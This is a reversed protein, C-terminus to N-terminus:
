RNFGMKIIEDEKSSPHENVMLDLTEIADEYRDGLIVVAVFLEKLHAISMGETADVWRDIDIKFEQRTTEDILHNFYIKRSEANPHEMKFRKDFRSPRNLIRPGLAEPYNTTALYVVKEVQNVGDLINLVDSESFRSITSDIDEILVVIPTEPQVERFMRIGECFVSPIGFNFVVGNRKIVDACVLQITSSKGSGPPGYLFIGRKYNLNYRKFYDQREWFNSIEKIVKESNSDPFKLLGDTKVDIKQFFLGKMPDVMMDFFGPKLVPVTPGAPYYRVGDLTTYQTLGKHSNKNETFPDDFHGDYQLTYNELPRLQHRNM